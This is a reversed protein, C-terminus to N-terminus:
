PSFEELAQALASVLEDVQAETILLPPGIM